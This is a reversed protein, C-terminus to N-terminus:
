AAGATRPLKIVFECWAGQESLVDISGEHGDVIIDYCISLGLGIGTGSPKTTFFPDFIKEKFEPAIGGGNDRVRIELWNKVPKTSLCLAPKYSPNQQKQKEAMAYLANNLINLFARSIDRPNVELIAASTDFQTNMELTLEEGYARITHCALEYQEELLSNLDIAQRERPGQSSHMMMSSVVRDARKGYQQIMNTNEELDAILGALERALPTDIKLDLDGLLGKVERTMDVAVEAFNNVFNLPNKIEHAIGATLIGLYAMKEQMILQKQAKILQQNKKRVKELIRAKAVASVAHAKLRNLRVLDTEDFPRGPPSQDLVLFGEITDELMVVMVLSSSPFPFEKEHSQRDARSFDTVILVGKSLDRPHFAFWTAVEDLTLQITDCGQHDYGIVAAFRYRAPDSGSNRVLFAGREARDFLTIGEKLLSGLLNALEVEQNMVRVIEDLTELERNRIQIERTRDEVKQELTLSYEQLQQKSSKLSRTTRMLKLHTNLRILLEDKAIPKVVYDNAGAEFGTVM